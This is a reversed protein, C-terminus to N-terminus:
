KLLDNIRKEADDLAKQPDKNELLVKQFEENVAKNIESINEVPPFINKGIELQKAAYFKGKEAPDDSNEGQTFYEDAAAEKVSPLIAVIKSFALQSEANTVFKAFKVAEEPSKTKASVAINMIAMHLFGSSGGMAPAADSKEYVEPSLDKVQRFLQPGTLWWAVKGQAYWENTKAQGLLLEKPILGKDFRAKFEKFIKLAEPTNIAAKKLDKSVIEVGNQPLYKHIENPVSGYVGLKDYLVETMEWAEKETAPPHNFGAKELLEKNYLMGGTTVYWPLAYTKDGLNGADWVGDFYDDKVDAAKKTLDMVAGVAALKKLYDTNLNMVDALKGSAAATLTKQEVTDFPLDEWVVTVGPNEKEFQDILGNIYDDFTPSLAITWFKIEVDKKKTGEGDGSASEKNSCATVLLLSFVLLLISLRKLKKM